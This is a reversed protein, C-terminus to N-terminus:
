IARPHITQGHLEQAREILADVSAVVRQWVDAAEDRKRPDRSRLYQHILHEYDSVLALSRRIEGEVSSGAPWGDINFPHRALYSKLM